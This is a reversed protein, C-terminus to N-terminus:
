LRFMSSAIGNYFKLDDCTSVGETWSFLHTLGNIEIATMNGTGSSGTGVFSQSTEFNINERGDFGNIKLEQRNIIKEVGHGAMHTANSVVEELTGKHKSYHIRSDPFVIITGQEPDKVLMPEPCDGRDKIKFLLRDMKVIGNDQIRYTRVFTYVLVLAIFLFAIVGISVLIIKM